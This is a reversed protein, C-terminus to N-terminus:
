LPWNYNHHGGSLNANNTIGTVLSAIEPVPDVTTPFPLQLREQATTFKRNALACIFVKGKSHSSLLSCNRSKLAYQCKHNLHKIDPNLKNLIINVRINYSLVQNEM